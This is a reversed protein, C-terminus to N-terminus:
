SSMNQTKIVLLELKKNGSNHWFRRLGAEVAIAQSSGLRLNIGEVNLTGEGRLVYFVIRWDNTHNKISGGPELDLRIVEHNDFKFIMWADQELPLKLANSTDTPTRYM